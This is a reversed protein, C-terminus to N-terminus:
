CEEDEWKQVQIGRNALWKAYEQNSVQEESPNETPWLNWERQGDGGSKSYYCGAKMVAEERNKAKGRSIIHDAMWDIFRDIQKETVM